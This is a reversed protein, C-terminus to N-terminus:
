LVTFHLVSLRVTFTEGTKMKGVTEDIESEFPKTEGNLWFESM